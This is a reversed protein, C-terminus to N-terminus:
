PNFLRMELCDSREAEPLHEMADNILELYKGYESPSWRAKASWGISDAVKKDLILHRM